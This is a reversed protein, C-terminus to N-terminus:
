RTGFYITSVRLFRRPSGIRVLVWLRDKQASVLFIIYVGTFGLKVIYFHPKLPPAVSYLCTKTISYVRERPGSTPKKPGHTTSFFNSWSYAVHLRRSDFRPRLPSLRSIYRQAIWIRYQWYITCVYFGLLSNLVPKNIKEMPLMM